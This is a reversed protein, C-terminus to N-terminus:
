FTMAMDLLSFLVFSDSLGSNEIGLYGYFFQPPIFTLIFHNTKAAHQRNVIKM